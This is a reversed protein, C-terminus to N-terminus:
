GGHVASRSSALHACQILLTSQEVEEGRRGCAFLCLSPEGSCEWARLSAESQESNNRRGVKGCSELVLGVNGMWGTCPLVRHLLLFFRRTPNKRTKRTEGMWRAGLLGLLAQRSPPASRRGNRGARGEGKRVWGGAGRLPRAGLALKAAAAAAAGLLGAAAAAVAARM